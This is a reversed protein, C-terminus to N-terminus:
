MDTLSLGNYNFILILYRLLFRNFISFNGSFIINIFSYSGILLIIYIINSITIKTLSHNLISYTGLWFLIFKSSTNM